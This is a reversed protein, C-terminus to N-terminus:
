SISNRKKKRILTTRMTLYAINTRTRIDHNWPEAFPVIALIMKSIVSGTNFINRLIKGLVPMISKAGRSAKKARSKKSIPM